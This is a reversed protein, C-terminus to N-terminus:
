NQETLLDLEIVKKKYIIFSELYEYFWLWRQASLTVM